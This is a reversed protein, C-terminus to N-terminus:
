FLHYFNFSMNYKIIKRLNKNNFHKNLIEIHLKILLIIELHMIYFILM